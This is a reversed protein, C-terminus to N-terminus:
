LLKERLSKKLTSVVLQYSNDIWKYIIKDSVLGDLIITNWYLKNMHYGPIVSEYKERAEIAEEPDFKLNISLPFQDTSILAFMKVVKFVLTVDDFPFHETVGPKKLCYKRISELEM